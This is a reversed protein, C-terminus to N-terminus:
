HRLEDKGLEKDMLRQMTEVMQGAKVFAEQLKGEALDKGGDRAWGFFSVCAKNQRDFFFTMDLGDCYMFTSKVPMKSHMKRHENARKEPLTTAHCKLELVKIHRDLGCEKCAQELINTKTVANIM